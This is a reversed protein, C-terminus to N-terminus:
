HAPDWISGSTYAPVESYTLWPSVEVHMDCFLINSRGHVMPFGVWSEGCAPILVHLRSCMLLIKESPSVIKALRYMPCSSEYGIYYNMAYGTFYTEYGDVDYHPSGMARISKDASCRLKEGVGHHVAGVYPGLTNQNNWVKGGLGESRPLWGDNDNAYMTFAMGLQKLNSICKLQRAKERAKQLAPLLLSALLAIVAIVVLLEILTFGSKEWSRRIKHLM